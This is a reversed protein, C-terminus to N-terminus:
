FKGKKLNTRRYHHYYIRFILSLFYISFFNVLENTEKAIQQLIEDEKTLLDLNNKLKHQSIEYNISIKNNRLKIKKFIKVKDEKFSIISQVKKTKTQYLIQNSESSSNEFNQLIHLDKERLCNRFKHFYILAILFQKIKKTDGNLFENFTIDSKLVNKKFDYHLNLFQFDNFITQYIELYNIKQNRKELIDITIDSLTKTDIPIFDDMFAKFFMLQSGQDFKELQSKEIRIINNNIYDHIGDLNLKTQIFNEIEM